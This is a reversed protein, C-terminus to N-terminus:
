VPFVNEKRERSGAERKKQEARLVIIVDETWNRDVDSLIILYKTGWCHPSRFHREEREGGKYLHLLDPTEDLRQCLFHLLHFPLVAGDKGGRVWILTLSSM